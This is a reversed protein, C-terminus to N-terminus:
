NFDTGVTGLLLVHVASCHSCHEM